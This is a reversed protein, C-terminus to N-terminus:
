AKRNIEKVRYKVIRKVLGIPLPQDLPFRITGKATEFPVLEGRFAKIASSTPYFGIHNKYAAFYVLDGHLQFTPIGYKITEEAEPATLRIAIRIKKLSIRVDKPYSSIYQDITKFKRKQTMLGEPGTM